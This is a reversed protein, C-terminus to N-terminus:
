AGCVRRDAWQRAVPALALALAELAEMEEGPTQGDHIVLPRYIRTLRRQIVRAVHTVVAERVAHKEGQRERWGEGRGPLVVDYRTALSLMATWLEAHGEARQCLDLVDGGEGCEGFCHWRQSEPFVAFAEGNTGRHLPCPGRLSGGAFRLSTLTAAYEEIRVAAKVAGIGRRLGLAPRETQPTHKRELM